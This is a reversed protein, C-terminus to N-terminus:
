LRVSMDVLGRATYADFQRIFHKYKLPDGDFMKKRDPPQALRNIQSTMLHMAGILDDITAQNCGEQWNNPNKEQYDLCRPSRSLPSTPWQDLMVYHRPSEFVRQESEHGRDWTM